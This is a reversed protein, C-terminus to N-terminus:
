KNEYRNYEGCLTKLKNPCHNCMGDCDSLRLYLKDLAKM